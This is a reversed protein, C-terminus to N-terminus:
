GVAHSGMSGAAGVSYSDFGVCCSDAGNREGATEPPHYWPGESLGAEPMDVEGVRSQGADCSNSRTGDARDWGVGDCLNLYVEGHVCDIGSPLALGLGRALRHGRVGGAQLEVKGRGGRGLAAM